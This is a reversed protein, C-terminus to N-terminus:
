SRCDNQANYDKRLRVTWCSYYEKDEIEINFDSVATVGGPYTKYVNKLVVGAM